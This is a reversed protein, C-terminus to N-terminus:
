WIRERADACYFARRFHSSVTANRDRPCVAYDIGGSTYMQLADTEFFVARLEVESYQCNAIEVFSIFSHLWSHNFLICYSRISHHFFELVSISRRLLVFFCGIASTSQLKGPIVTTVLCAFWSIVLFYENEPQYPLRIRFSRPERSIISQFAAAGAFRGFADSANSHCYAAPLPPCSDHEDIVINTSFTGVNWLFHELFTGSFDIFLNIIWM